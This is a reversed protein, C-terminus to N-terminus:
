HSIIWALADDLDRLLADHGGNFAHDKAAVAYLRRTPTDPGFLRRSEEASVYSDGSSQIVAFPLAGLREIAPYTQLRGKDDVQLAPTRRASDPEKLHDAERTLAVAIGGLLHRQLDPEGAAFVVLNSGRSFGTLIAPTADPLGLERKAQMLVTDVAAAAAVLTVRGEARKIQSLVVNPDCAVIRYGREVMHTLLLRNTGRWGNDGTAYLVLVKRLPSGRPIVLTIPLSQHALEIQVERIDYAGPRSHLAACGELVAAVLVMVAVTLSNSRLNTGM